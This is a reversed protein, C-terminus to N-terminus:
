RLCRLTCSESCRGGTACTTKAPTEVTVGARPVELEGLRGAADYRDVEFVDAM